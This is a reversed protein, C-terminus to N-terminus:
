VLREFYMGEADTSEAVGIVAEDNGDYAQSSAAPTGVYYMRWKNQNELYVIRPSGVGGGDFAKDDASRTFIPEDSVRQWKIGDPSTAMGISHVGTASIGEYWMRYSGDRMKLVSRRTIGKEDFAGSGGGTFVPGRKVWKIGNTSTALGIVFKKSVADYTHYYMKFSKIGDEVVTPWGCFLRDFENAAGAEVISGYPSDGEVRSWHVGDQSIAVGIELKSGAIETGEVLVTDANGGFVYMFFVGQQTIILSQANEGPVLVDGVGVHESDFLFWDGQEKSPNLVPNDEQMAWTLGDESEAHYIRGSSGKVLNSPLNNGRSHFWLLWKGDSGRRPPIVVPMGISQLDYSAANESIIKIAAQLPSVTRCKRFLPSSNFANTTQCFLAVLLAVIM